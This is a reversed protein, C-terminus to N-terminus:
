CWRASPPHVDDFSRNRYAPYSGSCRHSGKVAAAADLMRFPTWSRICLLGCCITNVSHVHTLQGRAVLSNWSVDTNSSDLGKLVNYGALAESVREEALIFEQCLALPCKSTVDNGDLSQDSANAALLLSLAQTQSVLEAIDAHGICHKNFKRLLESWSLRAANPAKGPSPADWQGGTLAIRLQIWYHRDKAATM